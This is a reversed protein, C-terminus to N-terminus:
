ATFSYTVLQVNGSSSFPFNRPFLSVSPNVMKPGIVWERAPIKERKQRNRPINLSKGSRKQSSHRLSLCLFTEVAVQHGSNSLNMLSIVRATQLDMFPCGRSKLAPVLFDLSKFSFKHMLFYCNRDIKRIQSIQVSEMTM